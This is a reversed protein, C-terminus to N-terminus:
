TSRYTIQFILVSSSSFYDKPAQRFNINDGVEYVRLNTSSEPLYSVLQRYDDAFNVGQYMLTGVSTNSAHNNSTFPLNQILIATANFTGGNYDIYGSVTVNNGVKVYSGTAAVTLGSSTPTWVGEEYDDLTNAAATNTGFKIGYRSRIGGAGHFDAVLGTSDNDIYLGTTGTASAHDNTIRVLQRTQSGSANSYFYGAKGTTLESANVRLGNVTTGDTAVDIAESNASQSVTLEGTMTGGALPLKTADTAAGTFTTATVTGAQDISAVESGNSQFKIDNNAGDANLTLNEASSKITSM